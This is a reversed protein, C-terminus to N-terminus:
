ARAHAAFAEVDLNSQAEGFWVGEQLEEVEHKKAWREWYTAKAHKLVTETLDEHWFILMYMLRRDEFRGLM